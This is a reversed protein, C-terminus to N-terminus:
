TSRGDQCIDTPVDFGSIRNAGIVNDSSDCDALIGIDGHPGDEGNDNIINRIFRSNDTDVIAIGIDSNGEPPNTNITNDLVRVTGAQFFLMGTAETDAEGFWQNGHVNNNRVDGTAGFYVGIGNSALYQQNSSEGIFNDTIGVRVMGQAVIGRKQWHLVTNNAITVNTYYTGDINSADIGNGEQCGSEFRNLGHITVNTVWGSARNLWVGRLANDGSQCGALDTANIQVNDVYITVRENEVPAENTIVAGLFQGGETPPVAWITHGAGDLETAHPLVISETTSCDENLTWVDMRQGENIDFTCEATPPAVPAPEGRQAFASLPALALLAALVVILRGLGTHRTRPM